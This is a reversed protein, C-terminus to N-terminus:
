DMTEQFTKARTPSLWNQIEISRGALMTSNKLIVNSGVEVGFSRKRLKTYPVEVSPLNSYNHSNTSSHEPVPITFPPRIRGRFSVAPCNESLSIRYELSLIMMPQVQLMVNTM